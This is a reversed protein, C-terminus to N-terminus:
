EKAAVQRPDTNPQYEVKVLYSSGDIQFRYSEPKQLLANQGSSVLLTRAGKWRM